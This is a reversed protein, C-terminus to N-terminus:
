KGVGSPHFASNASSSQHTSLRGASWRPLAAVFFVDVLRHPVEGFARSRVHNHVGKTTVELMQLLETWRLTQRRM